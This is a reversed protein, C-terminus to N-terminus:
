IRSKNSKLLWKKSRFRAMILSSKILYDLLTTYFLWIVDLQMQLLILPAIVRSIGISFLTVLMPYRTDGAGRLAGAISFEIAMLPMCLCLIHIVQIVYHVVQPDIIMFHALPSASYRMIIAGILMIYFATRMTRWGAQYAGDADGAGLHQSVLTAGSIAFSFAVVIILSLLSIGIGYAAFPANGYTTLFGLFILVGSQFAIQEFAAPFGISLLRRTNARINPLPNTVPLSLKGLLWLCTVAIVTIAAGIGCGLALGKVGLAPYDRWGLSFFLCLSLSIAFSVVGICLPTLSDGIARLAMNFILTLVIAPAFVATWVFFEVAQARAQGSLGFLDVLTEPFALALSSILCGLTFFLLVSLSAFHAAMARNDAGWYAGVLATTASCFGMIFAHLFFYLRQGTTVATVADAGMQGAIKLCALALLMYIMNSLITPWTLRLISLTSTAQM